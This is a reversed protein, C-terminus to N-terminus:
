PSCSDILRLMWGRTAGAADTATGAVLRADDSIADVFRLEYGEPVVGAELLDIAPAGDAELARGYKLVRTETRTGDWVRALLLDGGLAIGGRVDGPLEIAGESATWRFSRELVGDNAVYSIITSADPNAYYPTM